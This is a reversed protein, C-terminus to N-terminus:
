SQLRPMGTFFPKLRESQASLWLERTQYKMITDVMAPTMAEM